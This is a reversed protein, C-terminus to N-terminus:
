NDERKKKEGEERLRKLELLAEMPLLNPPIDPAIELSKKQMELFEEREEPTMEKWRKLPSEEKPTEM